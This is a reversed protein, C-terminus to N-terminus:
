SSIIKIYEKKIGFELSKMYFIPFEESTTLNMASLHNLREDSTQDPKHTVKYDTIFHRLRKGLDNLALIHAVTGIGQRELGSTYFMPDFDSWDIILPKSTQISFVSYGIKRSTGDLFYDTSHIKLTPIPTDRMTQEVTINQEILLKIMSPTKLTQLATEWNM